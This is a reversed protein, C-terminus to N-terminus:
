LIQYNAKFLENLFENYIKHNMLEPFNEMSVIDSMVESILNAFSGVLSWREEKESRNSRSYKSFSQCPACGVLIKFGDSPYLEIIEELVGVDKIIYRAGPNNYEYVYECDPDIDYGAIVNLGARRLGFTLGGAGFFLDIVSTKIFITEKAATKSLLDLM